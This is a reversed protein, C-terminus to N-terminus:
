GPYFADLGCCEMRNKLIRRLIIRRYVDLEEQRDRRKFLFLIISLTWFCLLEREQKPNGV